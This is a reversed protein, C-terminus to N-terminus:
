LWLTSHRPLPEFRVIEADCCRTLNQRFRSDSVARVPWEAQVRSAATRGALGSMRRLQSTALIGLAQKASLVLGSLFRMKRFYPM